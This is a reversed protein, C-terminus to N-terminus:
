IEGPTASLGAVLSSVAFLVLGAMFVARRGLLDAARGGLLLFGGFVLTYASVIWQLNEATFGLDTQIKPLAVNVITVDLVVMFQAVAVVALTWWRSRGGPGTAPTQAVSPVAEEPLTSGAAGTNNYTVSTVKQPPDGAHPWGPM